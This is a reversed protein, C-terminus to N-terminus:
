KKRANRNEKDWQNAMERLTSLARRRANHQNAWKDTDMIGEINWDIWTKRQMSLYRNKEDALLKKIQREMVGPVPLKAPRTAKPAVQKRLVAKKPPMIENKKSPKAM